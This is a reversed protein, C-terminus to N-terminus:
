QFAFKTKIQDHVEPPVLESIDGGFSAVEKVISSSLHAYKTSTMMFLTEISPNLKQNVLAMQFELEFDSVARLGKIVIKVGKQAAYDVLLGRFYDVEVNDYNATIKKLMEVREEITFTAKKRPNELVSVTVFDFVRHARDIIDLHGKTVPDFSGPYIIKAM